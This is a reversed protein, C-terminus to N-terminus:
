LMQSFYPIRRPIEEQFYHLLWWRNLLVLETTPSYPRTRLSASPWPLKTSTSFKIQKFMPLEQAEQDRMPDSPKMFEHLYTINSAQINGNPPPQSSPISFFIAGENDGMYYLSDTAGFLNTSANANLRTDKAKFDYYSAIYQGFISGYYSGRPYREFVSCKM